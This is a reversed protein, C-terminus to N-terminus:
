CFSILAWSAIALTIYKFIPMKSYCILRLKDWYIASMFFTLVNNYKTKNIGMDYFVGLLSSYSIADKDTFLTEKVIFFIPFITFWVSIRLHAQTSSCSLM